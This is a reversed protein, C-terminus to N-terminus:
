GSTACKHIMLEHTLRGSNPGWGIPPEFKPESSYSIGFIPGYFDIIRLLESSVDHM